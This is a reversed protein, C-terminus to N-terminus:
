DAKPDYVTWAVTTIKHEGKDGPGQITSPLVKGLLAGFASSNTVALRKLYGQMGEKGGAAEAAGLIAEKLDKTLKNPTSKKRGATRARSKEFPM